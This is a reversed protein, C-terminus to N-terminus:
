NDTSDSKSNDNNETADSNKDSTHAPIYAKGEPASKKNYNEPEVYDTFAAPLTALRALVFLFIAGCLCWTITDFNFTDNNKFAIITIKPLTAIGTFAAACLITFYYSGTLQRGVSFRLEETFLLLIFAFMTLNVTKLPSNIPSGDRFYEEILSLAAWVAPPFFLLTGIAKNKIFPIAIFCIGSILAAVIIGKALNELTTSNIIRFVGSAIMLVGTLVSTFIVSIGSTEPASISFEKRIYWGCAFAVVPISLPLYMSVAAATSDAMFYGLSHDFEKSLATFSLVACIVMILFTYVMTCVLAYKVNKKM